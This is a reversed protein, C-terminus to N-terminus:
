VNALEYSLQYLMRSKIAPDHTRIGGLENSQHLPLVAEPRLASRARENEETAFFGIHAGSRPLSIPVSQNFNGALASFDSIATSNDYDFNGEVWLTGTRNFNAALRAFDNINVTKNLDADGNLTYRILTQSFTIPFGGISSIGLPSPQNFYVTGYGIGDNLSSGAALQSQIAGLGNTGNWAGNARGNRIWNAITDPQATGLSVLMAGALDITGGSLTLSGAGRFTVDTPIVLTGGSRVITDGITDNAILRASAPLDNIGSDNVTLKDSNPAFFLSGDAGTDVNVPLVPDNLTIADNGGNGFISLERAYDDVTITSNSNDAQLVVLPSNIHVGPINILPSSGGAARTKQFRNANPNGVDGFFRYADVGGNELNDVRDDITIVDGSSVGNIDVQGLLRTDLDGGGINFNDNGTGGFMEHLGVVTNMNVVGGGPGARYRFRETNYSFMLGDTFTQTLLGSAVVASESTPDLSNDFEVRDLTGGDGNVSVAATLNADINGGGIFFLDDGNNGNLTLFTNTSNVTIVNPDANATLSVASANAYVVAIDQGPKTMLGTAFTYNDSGVSTNDNINLDFKRAASGLVQIESLTHLTAILDVTGPFAQGGTGGAAHITQREFEGFDIRATGKQIDAPRVSMTEIPSSEYPDNRDDIVLRDIGTGGLLNTFQWGNSDLDGGGVEITDGGGFGNVSLSMAARKGTLITSTAADNQDLQFNEITSDYNFFAPILGPGAFTFSNQTLTYSQVNQFNPDRDSMLMTDAGAGGIVTFNGLTRSLTGIGTFGSVTTFLDDGGGGNLTINTGAVACNVYIQNAGGDGRLDINEVSTFDGLFETNNGPTGKTLASSSAAINLNYYFDGDNTQDGADDLEIFDSGNGGHFAFSGNFIADLDSDIGPGDPILSDNGDGANFIVPDGSTNVVYLTDNSTGANIVVLGSSADFTASMSGKSVLQNFGSANMIWPQNSNNLDQDFLRFESETGGLQVNLAIGLNDIDVRQSSTGLFFNTSWSSNILVSNTAGGNGTMFVDNFTSSTGDRCYLEVNECESLLQNMFTTPTIDYDRLSGAAAGRDDFTIRDTGAGGVITMPPIFGNLQHNPGGFHVTDNGGRLDMSWGTPPQDIFMTESNGSRTISKTEVSPYVEVRGDFTATEDAYIYAEGIHMDNGDGNSDNISLHDTGDQGFYIVDGDVSHGFNGQAVNLTDNGPGAEFQITTGFRVDEIGLTDNGGLGQIIITTDTFDSHFPTGGNHSIAYRGLDSYIYATDDGGTLTVILTTLLRRSELGEIMLPQDQAMPRTLSRVATAAASILKRAFRRSLSSDAM